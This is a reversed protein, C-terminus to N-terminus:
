ELEVSDRSGGRERSEGQATESLDWADDVEVKEGTEADLEFCSMRNCETCRVRTPVGEGRSRNIIADGAGRWKYLDEQSIVVATDDFHCVFKRENAGIANTGASAQSWVFVGVGVVALVVLAIILRFDVIEQEKLSQM